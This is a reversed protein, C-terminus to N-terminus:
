LKIRIIGQVCTQSKLRYLERHCMMLELNMLKLLMQEHCKTGCRFAWRSWRRRGQHFGSLMGYDQRPEDHCIWSSLPETQISRGESVWISFERWTLSIHSKAKKKRCLMIRKCFFFFFITFNKCMAIAMWLTPPLCAPQWSSNKVGSFAESDAHRM